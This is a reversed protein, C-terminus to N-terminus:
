MKNIWPFFFVHIHALITGTVHPISVPTAWITKIVVALNELTQRYTDTLNINYSIGNRLSVITLKSVSVLVFRNLLKTSLLMWQM